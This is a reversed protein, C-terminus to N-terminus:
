IRDPNNKIYDMVHFSAISNKLYYYGDNWSEERLSPLVPNLKDISLYFHKLDEEPLEYFDAGGDLEDSVARVPSCDNVCVAELYSNTTCYLKHVKDNTELLKEFEPTLPSKNM